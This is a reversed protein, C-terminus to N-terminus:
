AAFRLSEPLFRQSEMAILKSLQPRGPCDPISSVATEVLTRLHAVAGAVGKEAAINPRKNAADQGVPKGIEEETSVIDRIDDAVQYAEGISNGLIRWDAGNYGCAQAGAMTAAAFLAGTKEEHYNALNLNEESEWAQGAVIGRPVGVSSGILSILSGLREPHSASHRAILEFAMVILADGTLVAIQEGFERHVTPKGRRIDADDFCPLDDHVLSACHLLEIAAASATSLAPADEGCSAAVALSLRPRIRHGGPFVAYALANTLGAPCGPHDAHAVADQLTAELREMMDM